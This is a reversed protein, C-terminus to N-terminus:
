IGMSEDSRRYGLVPPYVMVAQIRSVRCHGIVTVVVHVLDNVIQPDSVNLAYSVRICELLLVYM